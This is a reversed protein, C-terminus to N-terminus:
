KKCDSCSMQRLKLEDDIWNNKRKQGDFDGMKIAKDTKDHGEWSSSM